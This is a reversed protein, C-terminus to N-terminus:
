KRLTYTVRLNVQHDLINACFSGSMQSFDTHKLQFLLKIRGEVDKM